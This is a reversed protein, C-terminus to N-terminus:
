GNNSSQTAAEADAEAKAEADAEAQRKVPDDQTPCPIIISGCDTFNLVAISGDPLPLRHQADDADSDDKVLSIRLRM